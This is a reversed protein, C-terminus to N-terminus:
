VLPPINNIPDKPIFKLSIKILVWVNEEVYIYKLINDAFHHKNQRLM